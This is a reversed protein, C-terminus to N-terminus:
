ETLRLSDEAINLLVSSIQSGTINEFRPSNPGGACRDLLSLAAANTVDVAITFLEIQYSNRLALCADLTLNDLTTNNIRNVGAARWCGGAGNRRIWAGSSNQQNDSAEGVNADCGYYEENNALSSNQGDTLLVVVKRTRTNDFPQPANGSSYRFFTTWESRPSLMRLAWTLGIDQYTGGEARMRELAQKIQRRDGSLGLMPAPCGYQFDGSNPYTTGSETIWPAWFTGGAPPADTLPATVVGSSDVQREGDAARVCGRWGVNGTVNRLLQANQTNSYSVDRYTGTTRDFGILLQDELGDRPTTDRGLTSTNTGVPYNPPMDTVRNGARRTFNRFLRPMVAYTNIRSTSPMSWGGVGTGGAGPVVENYPNDSWNNSPADVATNVSVTWPVLGVYLNDEVGNDFLYDVFDQAAARMLVMRNNNVMSGSNDLVLVVEVRRRDSGQASASAGLSLHDMGFLGGFILDVQGTVVARISVNTPSYTFTIAAPSVEVTADSLNQEFIARGAADSLQQRVNEAEFTNLAYTRTASLLASDLADRLESQAAQANRYDIALGVGGLVPLLALAYILAFAGQKARAFDRLSEFQIRM